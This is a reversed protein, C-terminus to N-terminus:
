ERYNTVLDTEAPRTKEELAQASWYYQRVLYCNRTYFVRNGNEVVGPFENGTGVDTSKRPM